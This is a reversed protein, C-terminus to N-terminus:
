AVGRKAPTLETRSLIFDAIAAIDDLDIVPVQAEPVPGDSAVAVIHADDLCLLPNGAAPRYIELKEHPYAKFGEVLLLDVPSIHPLLDEISPEPAGRLEHMLAWRNASTVLVENAGASRHEYSDKGPQDVDFEHHAHKITSVSIGRGTMEPILRCVMTTKGSGSWGAFGFIKM